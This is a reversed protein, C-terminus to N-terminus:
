GLSLRKRIALGRGHLCGPVHKHKSAHKPGPPCPGKDRLHCCAGGVVCKNSHKPNWGGRVLDKAEDDNPMTLLLQLQVEDLEKEKKKPAGKAFEHQWREYYRDVSPAKFVQQEEEEASSSAGGDLRRRKAAEGRRLYEAGFRAGTDARLPQLDPHPLAMGRRACIANNDRAQQTDYHGLHALLGAAVNGKVSIREASAMLLAHGYEESYSSASLSIELASFSSETKNTGDLPSLIPLGCSTEGFQLYRPLGLPRAYFQAKNAQSRISDRSKSTFVCKIEGGVEVNGLGKIYAEPMNPDLRNAIGHLRRAIDAPDRWDRAISKEFTKFFAFGSDAGMMTNVEDNTLFDGAKLTVQQVPEGDCAAKITFKGGVKLGGPQGAPTMLRSRIGEISADNYRTFCSALEACWYDFAPKASPDLTNIMRGLGHKLDQSCKEPKLDQMYSAHNAPMNDVTFLRPPGGPRDRLECIADRISAYETNPVLVVSHVAKTQASTAAWIQRDPFGPMTIARAAPVSHDAGLQLLRDGHQSGAVGGRQQMELTRIPADRILKRALVGQVTDSGCIRSGYLAAKDVSAVPATPVM